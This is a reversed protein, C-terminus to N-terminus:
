LLYYLSVSFYVNTTLGEEFSVAPTISFPQSVHIKCNLTETIISRSYSPLGLTLRFGPTTKGFPFKAYSSLENYTLHEPATRSLGRASRGAPQEAARLETPGVISGAILTYGLGAISREFDKEMATELLVSHESSAEADKLRGFILGGGGEVRLDETLDKWVGGVLALERMFTDSSWEAWGYPDVNQAHWLGDGYLAIKSYGGSGAMAAGGVGFSPPGEKAGVARALIIMLIVATGIKNM